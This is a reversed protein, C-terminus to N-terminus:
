RAVINIHNRYAFSMSHGLVIMNFTGNVTAEEVEIRINSGAREKLMELQEKIYVAAKRLGPRGEQRDEKTLAAVHQIARAESFRDLPADVELPKIFKMHITSYVLLSILSFITVLFFLFKFGSVDRSSLRLVM